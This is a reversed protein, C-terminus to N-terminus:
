HGTAKGDDLGVRLQANVGGLAKSKLLEAALYTKQLTQYRAM